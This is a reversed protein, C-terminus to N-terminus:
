RQVGVSGGDRVNNVACSRLGSLSFLTSKVASMNMLMAASSVPHAELFMLTFSLKGLSTAQAAQLHGSCATGKESM